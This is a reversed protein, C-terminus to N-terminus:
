TNLRPPFWRGLTDCLKKFSLDQCRRLGVNEALQRYLASSRRIRSQRLAMVLSEKPRDPKPHGDTWVGQSRLWSRLNPDKGQWGLVLDVESSDSWVWNELEPEIVLVLVRNGWGSLALKRELEKAVDEARETERGSGEHDFLVLAYAAQNIFTQIIHPAEHYCGPDRRPHVLIEYRIPCMGISDCRTDLLGSIAEKEDKGPVLVILDLRYDASM